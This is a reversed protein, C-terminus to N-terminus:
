CRRSTSTTSASRSRAGAGRRLPRHPVEGDGPDHRGEPHGRDDVSREHPRRRRRAPHRVPVRELAMVASAGADEAIKAQEPTVVDMIVGGRLMEALGRKVRATGTTRETSEHREASDVSASGAGAVGRERTERSEYPRPPRRRARTVTYSVDPLEVWTQGPTLRIEAGKADTLKAPKAKDPRTWHGKIEKGGTFVWADGTGTLEAESARRRRRGIYQVFMVVVNKPALRVGDADVDPAARVELAAVLREERGLDLRRSGPPSASASRPSRSRRGVRADPKRYTFLPPPPVPTAGARQVDPRRAGVPQVARTARDLRHERYMMSGARTEDLQKVPATNISDIAYQAGGSYAFIGGIPWVISQDTKRVSRVPGVRDPAHSNFIAALRTIGGEVVEEYVVDAQDVGSQTAANPKNIKM